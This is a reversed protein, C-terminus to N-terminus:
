PTSADVVAGAPMTMRGVDFPKDFAWNRVSCTAYVANDAYITYRVPVLLGGMEAMEDYVLIHEPSSTVGPPLLTQYTM